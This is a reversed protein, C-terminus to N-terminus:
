LLDRGLSRYIGVRARASKALPSYRQTALVMFPAEFVEGSEDLLLLLMWPPMHYRGASCRPANTNLEQMGYSQLAREQSINLTEFVFEKYNDPLAVRKLGGSIFTTNEQFDKGGYGLEHVRKAVQYLPVFLGMIHLPWDRNAILAQAGATFTEAEAPYTTSEAKALLARVRDLM